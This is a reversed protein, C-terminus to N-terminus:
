THNPHASTRGPRHSRRRERCPRKSTSTSSTPRRTTLTSDPWSSTAQGVQPTSATLAVATRDPHQMVDGTEAPDRHQSPQHPDPAASFRLARSRRQALRM